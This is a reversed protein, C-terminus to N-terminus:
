NTWTWSAEREIGSILFPKIAVSSENYGVYVKRGYKFSSFKKRIIWVSGDSLTIQSRYDCPVQRYGSVYLNGNSDTSYVPVTYSDTAMPKTADVIMLPVDSHKVLMVKVVQGNNHNVLHFKHERKFWYWSTRVAIHVTDGVNWHLFQEPNDPHVKWQSGDNLVAVLDGAFDGHSDGQFVYSGLLVTEGSSDEQYYIEELTSASLNGITAFALFLSIVTNKFM